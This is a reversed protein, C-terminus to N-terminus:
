HPALIREAHTDPMEGLSPLFFLFFLSCAILESGAKNMSKTPEKLAEGAYGHEQTLM